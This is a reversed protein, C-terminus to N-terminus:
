QSSFRMASSGRLQTSSRERRVLHGFSPCEARKLRAAVCAFRRSIAAFAAGKEIPRVVCNLFHRPIVKRVSALSSFDRLSNELYAPPIGALTARESM